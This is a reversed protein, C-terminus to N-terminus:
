ETPPLVSQLYEFDEANFLAAQGDLEARERFPRDAGCDMIQLPGPGTHYEGCGPAVPLGLSHGMEHTATNGVLNGLTQIAKGIDKSRPGDPYEGTEVPQGTTPDFLGFIGDFALDALPNGKATAPSFQHFSEVFIGGYGAGDADRGALNDALRENCRDLDPTNDLGFLHQGNPDPGGFELISADLFDTPETLRFDINVGRYDRRLIEVIRDQIPGSVNRLGFTRLSDTFAPLFKLWVVQKSPLITFSIPQSAGEVLADGSTITPTATGILTGPNAGLDSSVCDADYHVKMSFALSTGSTWVPSITIGGAPLTRPPGGVPTFEGELRIFTLGADGGLFGQGGIEIRQGRSASTPSITDIQPALLDFQAPVFPMDTSWGLGRNGVQIEGTFRGPEIGMYSPDILLSATTRDPATPADAPSGVLPVETLGVEQAVGDRDRVFQGRLSVVTEGEGPQLFGDGRLPLPSQPYAGPPVETLSATLEQAVMFHVPVIAQGQAEGILVDVELDGVLDGTGLPGIQDAPFDVAVNEDDLRLAPLALQVAGGAATGTLSVTVDAGNLFGSGHLWARTGPLITEAWVTDVAVDLTTGTSGGSQGSACAQALGALAVVAGSTWPTRTM